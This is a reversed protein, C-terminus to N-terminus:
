YNTLGVRELIPGIFHMAFQQHAKVAEQFRYWHSLRYNKKWHYIIERRQEYGPDEDIYRIEFYVAQNFWAKKRYEIFGPGILKKYRNIRERKASNYNGIAEDIQRVVKKKINKTGLHDRFIDYLCGAGELFRIKNDINENKLILRSDNWLKTPVDPKFGADAHGISPIIAGIVGRIDNFNSKCGVFNQHAFTDAYAHTAIGIRYLDRSGLAGTLCLRAKKNNPITNLLHMKKDKRKASDALLEDDTGPMFHFVPYFRLREEQPKFINYTQSVYVHYQNSTGPDIVHEVNNDDAYQSSYAIVYANKKNFGAKLAIFYTIYYHFEKDM